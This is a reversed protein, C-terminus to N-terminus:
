VTVAQWLALAFLLDAIALAAVLFWIAHRDDKM